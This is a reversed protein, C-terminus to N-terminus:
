EICMSWVRIETETAVHLQPGLAGARPQDEGLLAGVEVAV